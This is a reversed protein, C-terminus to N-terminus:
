VGRFLLLWVLFSTVVWLAIFPAVVKPGALIGKGGRSPFGVWGVLLFWTVSHLLSFGLVVASFLTFAPSALFARAEAYGGGPLRLFAWLLVFLWIAMVLGTLERFFYLAYRRNRTWWLASMKPRYTGVGEAAM